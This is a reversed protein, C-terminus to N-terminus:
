LNICNYLFQQLIRKVHLKMMRLNLHKWLRKKKLCLQLGLKSSICSFLVIFSDSSLFQNYSKWPLIIQNINKSVLPVRLSSLSSHTIKVRVRGLPAIFISQKWFHAGFTYAEIWPCTSTHFGFTLKGPNRLLKLYCIPWIKVEVIKEM